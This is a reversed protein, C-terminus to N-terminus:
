KVVLTHGNVIYIGKKLGKLTKAAKRVMVGTPTYVDFTKGDAALSNIDTSEIVTLVGNVYSLEYNKAEGGSVTIDYEGVPSDKTATTTAVPKKTLVSEDEGLKWGEYVIVFEPNDVYQERTINDATVKLPAKTITLTGNVYTDNYNKVSGKKVVIDYTGASSQETAVCEIIPNGDLVAGETTFEFVPNEEGYERTYSKATVIVPDAEIITLKGSVYSIEYNQAEAGTVTIVYEGPKSDSTATTTLVPKKTLVDSTEKNKFGNYSASFTPLSEGQKITYSEASITLPAKTITLTGNVYTDNHNTVSGKSIVIPYTGVPSSPTAKCSIEPTGTLTAGVVDFEFSPNEEGYERTYNKAVLKIPPYNSPTASVVNSMGYEKLNTGQLKYYYYYTKGDEVADDRYSTAEVDIIYPNIRITDREIIQKKLWDDTEEDWTKNGFDDLVEEYHINETYRYINFGMADEIGDAGSPNWSLDVYDKGAEAMFGTSMSNAAQVNINFRTKEYPCEFFEDDEGGYVYIRNVGDSATKKTITAYATYITGEENWAGDENVANQTYPERVGFSISPEVAKNMPRNYYVEFKHRGVGLPPLEEYEDQADYGNVLVKWVIGHAERVPETLMNSLDVIGYRYGSNNDYVFNRVISEKSSGLYSPDKVTQTSPTDSQYCISFGNDDFCNFYNSSKINNLNMLAGRNHYSEYGINNNVINAYQIDPQDYRWGYFEADDLDIYNCRYTNTRTLIGQQQYTGGAICNKFICNKFIRQSKDNSYIVGSFRAFEFVCYELSNKCIIEGWYKNEKGSFHIKKEPTGVAIITGISSIGVNEEFFITTGPEITLTIGEPIALNEIVLYSKNSSLTMDKSLTGGIKTMNDVTIIFDHEMTQSINDCTATLKLKLHRGDSVNGKTQFVIPNQSVNKGYPSLNYGFDVDNEKITIISADEYEGVELHLKINKAEGFVTRLVPYLSITEGADVRGDSYTQANGEPNNTDIDKRDNIQIGLVELEAPRSTQNYAALFDGTHLLDGWLEEQTTYDKVMQLASIAGAVLPAAMSTGNFQKYGGNPVTSLVNVGPASMEYNCREDGYTDNVESYIPGDCDYNSFSALSGDNTTAQVGIVFSYAAPFVPGYLPAAPNCKKMIPAADNGAAAVIVVNRYARELAQRLAKSNSYTGLSMNIITAGNRTAYDIGKIITAIDGTGDSQMVTVPMILAKPNAGIIGINNDAAAAIGAVHTGHANYDRIKDTDNIFDYGGGSWINDKLDPHTIDVGTDLIAIIPRKSNVIPKTWLENIKLTPIGWQLSYSPNKSPNPSITEEGMIYARYNPEAFEVDPVSELRKSLEVTKSIESQELRILYLQSLDHDSITIGNVAQAKRVNQGEPEDPLLKEFAKVGYEHLLSDLTNNSTDQGRHRVVVSSHDKFKVLLEGQVFDYKHYITSTKYVEDENNNSVQAQVTLIGM